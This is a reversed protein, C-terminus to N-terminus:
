PLIGQDSLIGRSIEQQARRMPFDKEGSELQTAFFYVNGRTEVWGVLWGYHTGNIRTWGTKGSLVYEDNGDIRMVRRVIAESRESFPTDGKYLRRLFAVQEEASIRLEGDLWFQDIGGGINMNGYDARELWDRMREEGVRRAVEQYFWVASVPFATAMNHDRNWESWGRDVGDWGITSNEDAIVGTELAILSNLIKFTSAPLLRQRAREPNFVTLRDAAADYLVFAGEADFREFHSSLDVEVRQTEAPSRHLAAPVCGVAGSVLLAAAIASHTRFFGCKQASSMLTPPRFFMM